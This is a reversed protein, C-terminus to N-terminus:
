KAEKTKRLRIRFKKFPSEKRVEAPGIKLIENYTDEMDKTNLGWTKEWRRFSTKFVVVDEFIDWLMHLAVSFLIVAITKSFFMASIASLISISSLFLFNHLPSVLRKQAFLAREFGFRKFVPLHDLDILSSIVIVLFHDLINNKMYFGFLTYPLFIPFIVIGSFTVLLITLVYHVFWHFIGYYWTYNRTYEVM